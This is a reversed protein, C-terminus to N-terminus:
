APVIPFWKNFINQPDYMKKIQQLKPYNDGFTLETRDLLRGKSDFLAEQDYNSYGFTAPDNLLSRDGLISACLEYAAVRAKDTGDCATNDWYLVVLANPKITRRIATTGIPIAAVKTLPFYEFLISYKIDRLQLEDLKKITREFCSPIPGDHAVGKMYVGQGHKAYENQLCNVEEYPVERTTDLVPGIDFLPKFRAKGEEVTGNYFVVCVIIPENHPGKTLLLLMGEKEGVKPWWEAAINVVKEWLTLPYVLLGAFVTPRQPHLKLVFQTIVGFNCGGGRIGFFLHPNETESATLVSGDATVVTAQVVNDLALGHSGTLWGFGGGLTLGGVGTHNVTGGVTALGFKIATRDVTEWLAGGGVFAIQKKADVTVGNLYRSLDIVVGGDASSAGSTSHGGGRIAVSLNNDKAYEIALAVDEEDKVFAVVSAKRVANAAWRAIAEVYDADAPTVLDGKFRKSLAYVDPM